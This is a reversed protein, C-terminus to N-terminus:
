CDDLLSGSDTRTTSCGLGSVRYASIQKSFALYPFVQVSISARSISDLIKTRGDNKAEKNKEECIMQLVGNGRWKM